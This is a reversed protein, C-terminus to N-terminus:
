FHHGVITALTARLQETKFFAAPRIRKSQGIFAVTQRETAPRAAFADTLNL